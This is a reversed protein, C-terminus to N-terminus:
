ENLNKNADDYIPKWKNLIKEISKDLIENRNNEDLSNGYKIIHYEIQNSIFTHFRDSKIINTITNQAVVVFMKLILFLVLLSIIILLIKKIVKNM